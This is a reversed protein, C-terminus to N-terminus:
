IRTEVANLMAGTKVLGKTEIMEKILDVVYDGINKRAINIDKKHFLVGKFEEEVKTSIKRLNTDIAVRMFDRGDDGFELLVAYKVVEPDFIGILVDDM